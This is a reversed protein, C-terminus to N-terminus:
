ACAPWWGCPRSPTAASNSSAGTRSGSRTAWSRPGSGPSGGSRPPAPPRGRRDDAAPDPLATRDLKGNATVPLRDLLTLRAPVMPEPLTRALGARLRGPEPRRGRSPVVYGALYPGAPGERRLVVAEAVGPLGRLAAEVEGIEIRHGRIKVQDDARGAFALSGDPRRRVRDGTRYMRGGGPAFPDPLFREATLAPRQWYGRALGGGIYLEGTEGGGRTRSRARARLGGAGRGPRRDTRLARRLDRGAAGGLDAALDRM